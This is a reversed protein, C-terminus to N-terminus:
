KCYKNYISAITTHPINYIKSLKRYSYLKKDHKLRAIFKIDAIESEIKKKEYDRETWSNVKNRLIMQELTEGKEGKHLKLKSM